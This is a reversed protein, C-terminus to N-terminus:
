KLFIKNWLVSFFTCHSLARELRKCNGNLHRHHMNCNCHSEDKWWVKKVPVSYKLAPFNLVDFIWLFAVRLIRSFNIACSFKKIQLVLSTLMLVKGTETQLPSYLCSDRAPACTNNGCPVSNRRALQTLSQFVYCSYILWTFDVIM